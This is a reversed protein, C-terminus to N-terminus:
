VHRFRALDGPEGEQLSSVIAVRGGYPMRHPGQDIGMVDQSEVPDVREEGVAIQFVRLM